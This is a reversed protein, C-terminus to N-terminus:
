EGGIWGALFDDLLFSKSTQMKLESSRTWVEDPLPYFSRRSAYFLRAETKISLRAAPDTESSLLLSRISHTRHYSLWVAPQRLCGIPVLHKDAPCSERGILHSSESAVCGISVGDHFHAMLLLASRFYQLSLSAECTVCM